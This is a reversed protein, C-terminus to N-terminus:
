FVFGMERAEIEVCNLAADDICHRMGLLADVADEKTGPFPMEFLQVATHGNRELVTGRKVSNAYRVKYIGNHLSVGVVTFAKSTINSM